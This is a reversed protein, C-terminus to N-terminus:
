NRILKAEVNWCVCCLEFGVRAEGLVVITDVFAVSIQPPVNVNVFVANDRM